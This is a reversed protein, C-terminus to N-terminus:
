RRSEAFRGQINYLHALATASRASTRTIRGWRRRAFASRWGQVDAEAPGYKARDSRLAARARRRLRGSRSRQGGAVQERRSIIQQYFRRPPGTGAPACTCAHSCGTTPSPCTWRSSRRSRKQTTGPEVFRQALRRLSAAVKRRLGVRNRAALQSAITAAAEVDGLEFNFRRWSFATRGSREFAFADRAAALGDDARRAGGVLVGGREVYLAGLERLRAYPARM